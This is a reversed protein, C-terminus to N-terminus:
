RKYFHIYVNGRPVDGGGVNYFPGYSKVMVTGTVWPHVAPKDADKSIYFWKVSNDSIETDVLPFNEIYHYPKLIKELNGNSPRAKRVVTNRTSVLEIGARAKLLECTKVKDWKNPDYLNDKTPSSIGFAVYDWFLSRLAPPLLPSTINQSLPYIGCTEGWSAESLTGQNKVPPCQSNVVPALMIVALLTMLLALGDKM